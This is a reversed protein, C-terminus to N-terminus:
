SNLPARIRLHLHWVFVFVHLLTPPLPAFVHARSAPLTQSAGVRWGSCQADLPLDPVIYKKYAAVLSGPILPKLWDNLKKPADSMAKIAPFLWSSYDEADDTQPFNFGGVVFLLSLAYIPCSYRDTSNFFVVARDKLTKSSCWTFIPANLLTCWRLTEWALTLVEGTRGCAAALLLFM